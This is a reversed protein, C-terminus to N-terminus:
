ESATNEKQPDKKWFEYWKKPEPESEVPPPPPTFDTAPYLLEGMDRIVEIVDQNQLTIEANNIAYLKGGAIAKKDKFLESQRFHEEDLEDSYFIIDPEMAALEEATVTYETNNQALNDGFVSLLDSEFTDGTAIIPDLGTVYLFSPRNQPLLSVIYDLDQQFQDSFELGRENAVVQGSMATILDTYRAKLGDVTKIVPMVVVKIGVSSVKDMQAKTLPVNTFIIEPALIGIKDFDPNLGTGIMQEETVDESAFDTPYGVIKDGYELEILMQAISPSLCAVTKPEKEITVNLVTAPYPVIENEVRNSGDCGTFLLVTALAVSAIALKLKM